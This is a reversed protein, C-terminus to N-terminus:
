RSANQDNPVLFAKKESPHYADKPHTMKGFTLSYTEVVFTKGLVTPLIQVGINENKRFLTIMIVIESSLGTEFSLDPLKVNQIM